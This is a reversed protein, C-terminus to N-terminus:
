AVLPFVENKFWKSLQFIPQLRHYDDNICQVLTVAFIIDFQDNMKERLRLGERAASRQQYEKGTSRLGRNPMAEAVYGLRGMSITNEMFDGAWYDVVIYGSEKSMLKGSDPFM